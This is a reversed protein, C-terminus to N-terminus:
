PVGLMWKQMSVGRVCVKLWTAQKESSDSVGYMLKILVTIKVEPSELSASTELKNMDRLDWKTYQSKQLVWAVLFGNRLQSPLEYVRWALVSFLAIVEWVCPM